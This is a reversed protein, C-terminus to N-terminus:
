ENWSIIIYGLDYIHTWKFNKSIFKKYIEDYCDEIIFYEYDVMIVENLGNQKAIIKKENFLCIFYSKAFKIRKEKALQQKNLENM